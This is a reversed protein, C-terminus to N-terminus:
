AIMLIIQEGAARRDIEALTRNFEVSVFAAVFARGYNNSRALMIMADRAQSRWADQALFEQLIAAVRLSRCSISQLKFRFQNCFVRCGSLSGPIISVCLQERWKRGREQNEFDPM